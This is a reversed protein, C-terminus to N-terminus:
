VPNYRNNIPPSFQQPQQWGNNVPQQQGFIQHQQYSMTTPAAWSPQRNQPMPVPTMMSGMGMSQMVTQQVSPSSQLLSNFDLGRATHVLGPTQPQPLQNVMNPFIPNPIQQPQPLQVPPATSVPEGSSQLPIRRIAPLWKELNDFAEVWDFNFQLVDKEDVYDQFNSLIDIYCNVVNISTKMLSDLWPAVTCDSGYNYATEEAIRPFIYEMVAKYMERDKVRVKVDYISNDKDTKLLESYFHFGVAGVKSYRRDGISGGRKLYINVFHRDNQKMMGKTGINIFNTVTTKDVDKLRVLLNLQDPNLHKHLEPSAALMLLSKAIVFCGVNIRSNISRRLINIAPPVKVQVFTESLPHFIMKEMPNKLHDLTPLVMRKGNEVVPEAEKNFNWFIYGDADAKMNVYELIDKYLEILDLNM